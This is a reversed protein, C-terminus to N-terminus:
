PTRATATNWGARLCAPNPAASGLEGWTELSTWKASGRASELV